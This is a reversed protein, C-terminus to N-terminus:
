GLTAAISQLHKKHGLMQQYNDTLSQSAQRYQNIAEAFFSHSVEDVGCLLDDRIQGAIEESKNAASLTHQRQAEVQEEHSKITNYVEYFSVLVNVAVAFKGAYNGLTKEWKGKLLPAKLARLQLLAEKGVTTVLEKNQLTKKVTNALINSREQDSDLNSELHINEHKVCIDDFEKSFNKVREEVESASKEFALNIKSVLEDIAGELYKLIYTEGKGSLLYERVHSALLETKRYIINRAEIETRSKRKELFTLLEETKQLEPNDIQTDMKDIMASIFELIYQNLARIVESSDTDELLEKLKEELRTINSEDILEKEQEVKGELATRADVMLLSLKEEIHEIGERDGIKSLNINVKDFAAITEKANPDSNIKNNLVILLPKEMKVIDCIKKYIYEEEFSGANSLVFLVIECKKLHEETVQEHQIPANIGPTDYMTYGQYEYAHVQSTEPADGTKALEEVGLLANILTSKGSNYTGYVMLTPAFNEMKEQVHKRFSCLEEDSAIDKSRKLIENSIKQYQPQDSIM